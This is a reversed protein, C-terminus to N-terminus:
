NMRKGNRLRIDFLRSCPPNPLICKFVNYALNARLARWLDFENTLEPAAANIGSPALNAAGGLVGDQQGVGGGPQSAPAAHPGASAGSRRPQTPRRPPRRLKAQWRRERAACAGFWRKLLAPTVQMETQENEVTSEVKLGAASFAAALDDADWAVLAAGADEAAPTYIAEEAAHWRAVLDADLTSADVLAHLRQTHRPIREALSIVGGPALLSALLAAAAPKDPADLLANMGVLADFREPSADQTSGARM